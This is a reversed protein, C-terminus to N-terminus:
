LDYLAFVTANKDSLWKWWSKKKLVEGNKSETELSISGNWTCGLSLEWNIKWTWKKFYELHMKVKLQKGLQVCCM